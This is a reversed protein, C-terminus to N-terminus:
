RAILGAAAAMFVLLTSAAVAVMMIRRDHRPAAEFLVHLLMNMDVVVNKPDSPETLKRAILALLSADVPCHHRDRFQTNPLAPLMLLPGFRPGYRAGHPSMGASVRRPLQPWAGCRSRPKLGIVVRIAEDAKCRSARCSVREARRPSQNLDLLQQANTSKVSQWWCKRPV